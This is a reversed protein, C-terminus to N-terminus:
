LLALPQINQPVFRCVEEWMTKLGFGLFWPLSNSAWIVLGDVKTKDCLGLFWRPSKSAWIVLSDGSTKLSFWFVWAERRRWTYSTFRV